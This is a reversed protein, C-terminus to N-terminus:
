RVRQKITMIPYVSYAWWRRQWICHICTLLRTPDQLMSASQQRGALLLLHLHQAYECYYGAEEEKDRRCRKIAKLLYITSDRMRMADETM